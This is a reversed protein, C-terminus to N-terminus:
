RGAGPARLDRGQKIERERREKERQERDKEERELRDGYAKDGITDIDVVVSLGPILVRRAEPGADLHIRVPVRQVIKTFNGTANQAPLVSFEAGTAPQFSEVTGTINHGGLADVTITAPQGIRMLRLQTEKFNAEVYIAHIPVITLMQSGTNVYTGLFAQRDGVRGAVSARIVSNGTDVAAQTQQATAQAVQAEAQVIQSRMAAIQRRASLEQARAARASDAANDRQERYQALQEEKEAGAAALPEYRRVEGAYFDRQVEYGHAQAAYQAVTAQQAVIQNRYQDAQAEAQTAQAAYQQIKADSSRADLEFLIDGANVLQNDVIAVRTVKASVSATVTAKDVKVYADDTSQNYRGTTFDYILWWVLAVLLLVAVIVLAIRVWTKKLPSKKKKDGDDGDNDKGDDDKGDDDKGGDEGDGGGDQADRPDSARRGGKAAVSGRREPDHTPPKPQDDDKKKDKDKKDKKDKEDEDDKKGEDKNKDEDKDDTSKSEDAKKGNDKAHDGSEDPKGDDHADTARRGGKGVISGRREPVHPPPKPPQDSDKKAGRGEHNGGEGPPRAVESSDEPM